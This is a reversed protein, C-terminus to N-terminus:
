DNEVRPALIFGMGLRNGAFDIRLPYDESFKLVVKDAFTKGKIFKMLYELSYKSNGAGSVTVTDSSFEAKASNLSGKGEVIFNDAGVTLTCADAVVSCDEIVQSFEQSNMEVSCSFNLVPEAKDEADVDILSLVFSRKAKDFMSIKLQNDEQEIIISSSGSARKIIKKFDELNIGWVERGAEYQSFSEKPIKFVVMAVNAPDVVSMGEDLLKIRVETVIESLISIADGLIKPNDLQVIM